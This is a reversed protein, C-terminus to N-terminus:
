SLVIRHYEECLAGPNGFHTAARTARERAKALTIAAEGWQSAHSCIADAICPWLETVDVFSNAEYPQQLDDGFWLVEQVCHGPLPKFMFRRWVQWRPVVEATRAGPYVSEWLALSGYRHDVHEAGWSVTTLNSPCFSVVVAPRLKRLVNELRRVLNGSLYAKKLGGDNERLFIVHKVGVAAASRRQEEERQEVAGALHGSTVIVYVVEIGMSTLAAALGAAHFDLDDPHYGVLMVPGLINMLDLQYM